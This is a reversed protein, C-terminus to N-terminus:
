RFFDNIYSYPKIIPTKTKIAKALFVSPKALWLLMMTVGRRQLEKELYQHDIEAKNAPNANASPFLLARIARDGLEEPLPWELGYHKVRIFASQVTYRACDCSLAINRQSVGLSALRLIERYKIM